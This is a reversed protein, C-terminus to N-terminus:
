KAEPGMPVTLTLSTGQRRVEVSLDQGAMLAEVAARHLDALSAMAQGGVAVLVDGPAFGAAQAKSGPEVEAVTLEQGAPEIKLGLHAHGTPPCYFFVDAEGPDVRDSRAPGFVVRSAESDLVALRAAIGMGRGVHGDGAVIVVPRNLERRIEVARYAMTTDWFAQVTLFSQWDRKQDSSLPLAPHAKFAQRLDAQEEPSAPIIRPPLGDLEEPSLGALGTQGVKRAVKGPANLAFVPLGHARAAQFIPLYMVFPFGWTKDWDLAKELDKPALEGQNFLDLVPQRDLSVMELGVAPAAGAQAMLEIIRAEVKHDCISLHSEGVLVYGAKAAMIGAQGPGVAGSSDFFSGPALGSAFPMSKERSLAGEFKCGLSCLLMGLGATVLVIRAALGM